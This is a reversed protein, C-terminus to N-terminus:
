AHVSEVQPQKRQLAKLWAVPNISNLSDFAMEASKVGSTKVFEEAFLRFLGARQEAPTASESLEAEVGALIESDVKEGFLRDLLKAFTAQKITVIHKAFSGDSIGGLQRVEYEFAQKLLPSQVSFRIQTKDPTVEFRNQEILQILASDFEALPAYKLEVEYILNRVKTESMRLALSMEHYDLEQNANKFQGDQLLLYLLYIELERKPLAGFGNELFKTLFARSLVDANNLNIPLETM